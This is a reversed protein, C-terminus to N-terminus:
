KGASKIEKLLDKGLNELDQKLDSEINEGAKTKLYGFILEDDHPAKHFLELFEEHNERPLKDLVKEIVKHNIIEDVLMWLEEREEKSSASKKIEIEVETLSILHDYFLKSM